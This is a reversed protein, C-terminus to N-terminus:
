CVSSGLDKHRNKNNVVFSLNRGNTVVYKATAKKFADRNPFRLGVKWQFTSFDTNENVVEGYTRGRVSLDEEESKDPTHIEDDSEKYESLCEAMVSTSSEQKSRSATGKEKGGM